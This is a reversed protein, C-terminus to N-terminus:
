LGTLKGMRRPALYLSKFLDEYIFPVIKVTGRFYRKKERRLRIKLRM